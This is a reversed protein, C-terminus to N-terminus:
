TGNAVYSRIVDILHQTAFPKTIYQDAGLELGHEIYDKGAQASLLLVPITRTHADEKLTKLVDYGSPGPMLIDCIIVDPQLERALMLGESGNAAGHVDFGELEFTEMLTELINTEDEIVLIRGM